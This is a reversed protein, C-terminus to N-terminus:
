YLYDYMKEDALVKEIYKVTEKYPIKEFDKGDKSIISRDLWDGVRGRGANYAALVLERSSFEKSLNDIYWAGMKINTEPDNLKDVTFSKDGMSKAIWEATPKTIQMLGVAGQSSVADKDYRSEANIVAMLFHEELNYRASYKEIMDRYLLRYSVNYLYYRVAFFSAAALTLIVILAILRKM